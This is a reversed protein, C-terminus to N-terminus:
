SCALRPSGELMETVSGTHQHDNSVFRADRRQVKEINQVQEKTYLDWVAAVYEVKPRVLMKYAKERSSKSNVKLNRRTFGLMKNGANCVNNIHIDFKGDNQITVGLYKTNNVIQLSQNHLQYDYHQIFTKHNNGHHM